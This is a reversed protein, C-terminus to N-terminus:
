KLTLFNENIVKKHGKNCTITQVTKGTFMKPIAYKLDDNDQFAGELASIIKVLFECADEQNEIEMGWVCKCLEYPECFKLNSYMMQYFLKKLEIFTTKDSSLKKDDIIPKSNLVFLRFQPVMYLAQIIVNGFCVKLNKNNLGCYRNNENRGLSSFDFKKDAKSIYERFHNYHTVVENFIYVVYTEDRRSINYLLDLALRTSAESTCKREPTEDDNRPSGKGEEGPISFLCRWFVFKVFSENGLIERMNWSDNGHKVTNNFYRLYEVFLVKDNETNLIEQARYLIQPQVSADECAEMVNNALTVLPINRETHPNEGIARLIKDLIDDATRKDWCLATIIDVYNQWCVQSLQTGVLVEYFEKIKTAVFERCEQGHERSKIQNMLAFAAKCLKTPMKPYTNLISHVVEDLPVADILESCLRCACIVKFIELCLVAKEQNNLEINFCMYKIFHNIGGYKIFCEIFDKDLDTERTFIDKLIRLARDIFSDEQPSLPHQASFSALVLTKEWFERSHEPSKTEAVILAEDRPRLITVVLKELNEDRFMTCLDSLATVFDKNDTLLEHFSKVYGTSEETSLPYTEMEDFDEISEINDQIFAKAEELTDFISVASPFIGATAPIEPFMRILVNLTNVSKFDWFKYLIRGKMEYLMHALRLANRAITPESCKDAACQKLREVCAEIIGNRVNEGIEHCRENNMILKTGIDIVMTCMKHVTTKDTATFLTNFIYDQELLPYKVLLFEKTSPCSIYGNVINIWIFCHGILISGDKMGRLADRLSYVKEVHRIDIINKKKIYKNM